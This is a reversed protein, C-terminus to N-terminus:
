FLELVYRNKSLNGAERALEKIKETLTGPIGTIGLNVAHEDLGSLSELAEASTDTMKAELEKTVIDLKDLVRQLKLTPKGIFNTDVPL